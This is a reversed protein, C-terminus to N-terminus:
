QSHQSCILTVKLLFMINGLIFFILGVIVATKQGSTMRSYFYLVDPIISDGDTIQAIKPIFPIWLVITVAYFMAGLMVIKRKIM